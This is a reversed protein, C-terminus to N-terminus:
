GKISLTRIGITPINNYDLDDHDFIAEYEVIKQLVYFHHEHGPLSPDPSYLAQVYNAITVKQLEPDLIRQGNEDKVAAWNNLPDAKQRRIEKWLGYEQSMMRDFKKQINTQNEKDILNRIEVQIQYYKQLKDGKILFDTEKEFVKKAQRKKLRLEKIEKSERNQKCPKITTKGITGFAIKEIERTWTAYNSDITGDNNHIIESSKSRTDHLRQEFDNWLEDPASLRWKVVKPQTTREFNDEMHLTMVISNHDSPSKGSLLFNGDEDIIMEKVEHTINRSTLLFDIASKEDTKSRNVRTIKGTCKETQNIVDLECEEIVNLLLRGNRSVGENLIDIKANADMFIMIEGNRQKDLIEETLKDMEQKMEEVTNRSEQKGYYIGCYITKKNRQRISVWYLEIDHLSEHPTIIHKNDDRVLIGVGGSNKTKGGKGCFTYGEIKFGANGELKTETFLAIQPKLESLM